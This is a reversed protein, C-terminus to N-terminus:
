PLAAQDTEQLNCKTCKVSIFACLGQTKSRNMHPNYRKCNGVRSHVIRMIKSIMSLKPTNINANVNINDVITAEQSGIFLNEENQKQRRKLALSPDCAIQAEHLYRTKIYM